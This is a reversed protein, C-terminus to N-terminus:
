LGNHKAENWFGDMEELSFDEFQQGDEKVRKEVYRFRREFKKVARLLLDEATDRKRFRSINVVAFLLDGIEEDIKNDEGHEIAERVEDLEEQVKDLIPAMEPWDFGVKAVKKQVDRARLLGPLSRPVKDLISEPEVNNREKKKIEDWVVAVKDPTDADGDSFVHPHRRLMKEVSGKAVDDFNFLGEEEAVVSNFVINMLVDGLEDCLGPYDRDIVSDVVESCEERLYRSLTEHTQERDWPCGGPARLIKMVKELQRVPDAITRVEETKKM